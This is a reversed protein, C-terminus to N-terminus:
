LSQLWDIAENILVALSLGTCILFIGLIFGRLFRDLRARLADLENPTWDRM